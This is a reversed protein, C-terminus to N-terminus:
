TASRSPPARFRRSSRKGILAFRPFPGDSAVRSPDLTCPRTSRCPRLAYQLIARLAEPSPAWTAKQKRLCLEGLSARITAVVTRKLPHEPHNTSLSNAEGLSSDAAQAAGITAEVHNAPASTLPATPIAANLDLNAMGADLPARESRVSM